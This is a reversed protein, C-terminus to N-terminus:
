CSFASVGVSLGFISGMQLMAEAGMELPEPHERGSFILSLLGLLGIALGVCALKLFSSHSEVFQTRFNRRIAKLLERFDQGSLHPLVFRLQAAIPPEVYRYSKYCFIM